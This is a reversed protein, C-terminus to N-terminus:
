SFLMAKWRGFSATTIVLANRLFRRHFWLGRMDYFDAVNTTLPPKMRAVTNTARNPQDDDRKANGDPSEAM